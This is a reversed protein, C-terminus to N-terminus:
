AGCKAEKTVIPSAAYLSLALGGVPYMVVFSLLGVGLAAGAAISPKASRPRPRSQATKPGHSCFFAILVSFLVKRLPVARSCSQPLVNVGLSSVTRLIGLDNIYVPTESM